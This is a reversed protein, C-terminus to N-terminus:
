FVIEFLVTCNVEFRIFIHKSGLLRGEKMIGSDAAQGQQFITKVYIGMPGRPSDKGGVISFGLSKCGPGKNFVVTKRKYSQGGHPKTQISINESSWGADSSSAFKKMGCLQKLTTSDERVSYPKKFIDAEDVDMSSSRPKDSFSVKTEMENKNSLIDSLGVFRNPKVTPYDSSVSYKRSKIIDAQSNPLYKEKKPSFITMLRLNSSSTSSGRKHSKVASETTKRAVIIELEGNKPELYQKVVQLPCGKIRVGNLKVVEDGM